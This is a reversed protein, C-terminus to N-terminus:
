GKEPTLGRVGVPYLQLNKSSLDPLEVDRRVYADCDLLVHNCRHDSAILFDVTYRQLVRADNSFDSRGDTIPDFNISRIQHGAM